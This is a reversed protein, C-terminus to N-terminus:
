ATKDRYYDLNFLTNILGRFKKNTTFQRYETTSSLSKALSLSILIHQTCPSKKRLLKIEIINLILYFM